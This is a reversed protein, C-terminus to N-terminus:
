RNVPTQAKRHGERRTLWTWAFYRAALIEEDIRRCKQAHPRYAIEQFARFDVAIVVSRGALLDRRGAIQIHVDDKLNIPLSGALHPRLEGIRYRYEDQRGREFLEFPAQPRPPLIVIERNPSADGGCRGLDAMRGFEVM